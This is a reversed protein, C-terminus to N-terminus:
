GGSVGRAAGTNGFGGRSAATAKTMPAQGITAQPRTFQSAGLTARGANSSYTSTRAANTYRGDATKYLPQGAALGSRGGLMNGILYGALLPMFISGSGTNAVQDESGCAGPGHETECVELSDYRPAAEVHLRNAEAFAADCDAVPFLGDTAAAAECSQQDPFAQADVTEERCGALAFAAAGVISIAVYKSRKTM